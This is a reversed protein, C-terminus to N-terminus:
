GQRVQQQQGNYIFIYLAASIAHCIFIVARCHGLVRSFLAAANVASAM